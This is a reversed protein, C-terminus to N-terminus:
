PDHAAGLIKRQPDHRKRATAKLAPSPPTAAQEKNEIRVDHVYDKHIVKFHIIHEKKM